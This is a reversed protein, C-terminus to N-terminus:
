KAGARPARAVSEPWYARESEAIQAVKAAQLCYHREDGSLKEPDGPELLYKLVRWWHRNTVYYATAQGTCAGRLKRKQLSKLLVRDEGGGGQRHTKRSHPHPLSWAPLVWHCKSKDLLFCNADVHGGYRYLHAYMGRGVGVSEWRDICLPKQSAPDVYWRYSHAWAHGEVAARLSSLHNPAWWNDDDLYALYRSNAAYSLITRLAGGGLIDYFGGNGRGTSYGLDFVTLQMREPCEARLGDILTQDGQRVDIGILIQISGPFDQEFISRVARALTPRLVTAIIVACDHIM